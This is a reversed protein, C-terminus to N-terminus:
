PTVQCATAFAHSHSDSTVHCPARSSPLLPDTDTELSLWASVETGVGSRPTSMGGPRQTASGTM